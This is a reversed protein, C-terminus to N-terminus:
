NFPTLESIGIRCTTISAQALFFGANDWLLMVITPTIIRIIIKLDIKMIMLEFKLIIAGEPRKGPLSNITTKPIILKENV